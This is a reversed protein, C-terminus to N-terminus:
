NKRKEFFKIICLIILQEITLHIITTTTTTTTMTYTCRIEEMVETAEEMIVALVEELVEEVVSLEEEEWGAVEEMVELVMVEETVEEEM